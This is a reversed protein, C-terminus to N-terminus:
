GRDNAVLPAAGVPSRAPMSARRSWRDPQADVGHPDRREVGRGLGVEAVVHGVEAVDVGGEAVQGGEVAQQRGAVVAPRRSSTSRTGLWVDSWCGQNTAARDLRSSGLRSQYTQRSPSGSVGGLLQTAAKPGHGGPRPVLGGALPVEVLEQGLLGVEVPGVGLDDLRHVPHHAEPEVAPDVPEADVDDVADALVRAQGVIRGLHRADGVGREVVRGSVWSSIRPM